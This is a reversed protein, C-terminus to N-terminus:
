KQEFHYPLDLNIVLNVKRNDIGRAILNTSLLVKIKGQKFENMIAIRDGHEMDNTLIECKHGQEMLKNAFQDAFNKSNVFIIVSGEFFKVSFQRLFKNMFELKNQRSCKIFFHTLNKLNLDEKQVILKVVKRGLGQIINLCEEPFTASFMGIRCFSPFEKIKNFLQIMKNRGYDQTFLKDTEDIVLFKLNKLTLQKKNLFSFLSGLTTILIDASKISMESNTETTLLISSQIKGILIKKLVGHTQYCLEKTDALIIIRPNFIDESLADKAEFCIRLSPILFSLTKGSGNQSQAILDTETKSNFLQIVNSQIKSPYKFNADYLKEVLEEPLEM